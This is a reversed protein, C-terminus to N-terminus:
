SQNLFEPWKSLWDPVFDFKTMHMKGRMAVTVHVQISNQNTRKPINRNAM